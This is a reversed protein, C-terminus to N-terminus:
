REVRWLRLAGEAPLPTLEAVTGGRLLLGRLSLGNAPLDEAKAPACLAVYRVGWRRMLGLAEAPPGELMADNDIIARSLRHYPAAVVSHPTHALLHPGLDIPAAVLGAELSSLPRLVAGSICSAAENDTEATSMTGGALTVVGAAAMFMVQQTVLFLALSRVM